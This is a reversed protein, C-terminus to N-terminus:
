KSLIKEVFVSLEVDPMNGFVTMKSHKKFYDSLYEVAKRLDKESIYKVDQPRKALVQNQVEKILDPMEEASGEIIIKM